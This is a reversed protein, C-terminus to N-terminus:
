SLYYYKRILIHLVTAGLDEGQRIGCSNCITLIVPTEIEAYHFSLAKFHAVNM